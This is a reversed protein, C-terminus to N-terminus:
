VVWFARAYLGTLVALLLASVVVVADRAWGSWRPQSLLAAAALYLGFAPLLYRGLSVWTFAFQVVVLLTTFLASGDDCVRWVRPLLALALLGLLTNLVVILHRPDGLLAQRPHLVFLEAYFRVHEDWGGWTAQANFYALPDDFRRWTYLGYALTGLPSLIAIVLLDRLPARRRWAQFLLAPALALGVLRSGSALGAIAGALWWRGQGAAAFAGLVLLLFLSESYAANFFFSFPVICVLLAATRGGEEGLRPVALRALMPVAAFFCLNAILIGALALNASTPPAGVVEVAGRMLLPFLPFFGVGGHPSPNDEGGYGQGAIAVYHAADWRAWGDLWLHDPFFTDPLQVPHLGFRPAVRLTFWAILFLALRTALAVALAQAALAVNPADIRASQRRPSSASPTPERSQEAAPEAAVSV